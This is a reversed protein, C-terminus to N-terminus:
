TKIILEFQNEFTCDWRCNRGGRNLTGRGKAALQMDGSPNKLAFSGRNLTCGGLAALKCCIKDWIAMFNGNLPWTKLMMAGVCCIKDWIARFNGNLPWKNVEDRGSSQKKKHNAKRLDTYLKPKM